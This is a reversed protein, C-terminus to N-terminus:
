SAHKLTLQLQHINTPNGIEEIPIRRKEKLHQFHSPSMGTIKKFQSSLHAVSSYNMKWAIESISLEGYIILEKVREIKTSMTFLQITIGLENSFLKALYNYGHNLKKSLFDSFKVKVTEETNYVMEVITNKIKEILVAKEDDILELGWNLLSIKLQKRQEMSINEMIEVEGLDIIIFHLGLKKLEERVKMKCCNSVMNKIHLKSKEIKNVNESCKEPSYELTKQWEAFNTRAVNIDIANQGNLEVEYLNRLQDILPDHYNAINKM